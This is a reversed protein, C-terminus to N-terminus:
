CPLRVPIGRASLFEKLERIPQIQDHFISAALAADARGATFIEAFHAPLKAGGNGNLADNFLSLDYQHNAQDTYGIESLSTPAKHDPNATSAYYQFPNHHPSYESNAVGAINTSTAGCVAGNANTTTPAFGGQFWGWSVHQQNLLDGINKGAMQVQESGSCVDGFPDPDGIVTFGGNGDAVLAGTGGKRAPRRLETPDM